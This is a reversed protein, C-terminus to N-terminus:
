SATFVGPGALEDLTVELALALKFANELGPTTEGKLYRRLLSEGIHTEFTLQAVSLHRAKRIADLRPGFADPLSATDMGM